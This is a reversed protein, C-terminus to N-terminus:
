DRWQKLKRLDIVVDYAGEAPLKQGHTFVVSQGNPLGRPFRERMAAKFMEQPAWSGQASLSGFEDQHVRDTSRDDLSLEIMYVKTQPKFRTQTVADNLLRWERGQPRAILSLTNHWAGFALLALLAALGGYHAWPEIGKDLPLRRLSVIVVTLVLGSLAALTRYGTSHEAALLSIAHAAWPLVGLCLQWAMLTTPDSKVKESRRVWIILAVIGAVVPWFFLEGTHFDDRLAFLALANPLPQWLFWLLKTFPNTELQMRTSEHFVGAAFLGRLLLYAVILSGILVGVHLLVWRFLEQPTRREKTLASAAIPVVAFLANSPYILSALVYIFIGGIVGVARKMGGKELETEVAAFGAVALILSLAWPWGIAWGVGIQAAPLLTVGLGLAAADIEPWGAADLQKWLIIGLGILLVVSTLRLWSLDDVSDMHEYTTELMAGYLPRGQSATFHVLKGPEERAERMHSYDDRMGYTQFVAPAYVLLPVLILLWYCIRTRM